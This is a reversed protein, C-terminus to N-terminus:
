VAEESFLVELPVDCGIRAKIKVAEDFTIPYKGNLKLSITGVTVGLAEGLDALTINRRAREAELNPFM